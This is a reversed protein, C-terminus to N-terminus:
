QGNGVVAWVEMVIFSVTDDIEKVVAQETKMLAGEFATIAETTM